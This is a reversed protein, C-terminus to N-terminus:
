IDRSLRSLVLELRGLDEDAVAVQAQRRGM